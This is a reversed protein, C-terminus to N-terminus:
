FIIKETFDPQRRPSGELPLAVPSPKLVFGDLHRVAEELDGVDSGLVGPDVDAHGRILPLVNAQVDLSGTPKENTQNGVM